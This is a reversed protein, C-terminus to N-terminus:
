SNHNPFHVFGIPNRKPARRPQESLTCISGSGLCPSYPEWLPDAGPVSLPPSAEM